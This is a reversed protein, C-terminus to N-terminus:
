SPRRAMRMAPGQQFDLRKCITMWDQRTTSTSPKWLRNCEAVNDRPYITSAVRPQVSATLARPSGAPRQISAPRLLARAVRQGSTAKAMLSARTACDAPPKAQLTPDDGEVFYAGRCAYVVPLTRTAEFADYGVKLNSWFARWPSNSHQEFNATTMRFPFVHVPIEQQGARLAHEALAYIREMIADTMAFCGTSRCGGHLLIHSGTRALSRDVANPYGLDLSRIHRGTLVLQQPSVSYFGEPSQRDGEYLKPGLTGSWHCIPFTDLLEFREANQMWLELQSEQKFMRIFLPNGASLDSTEPRRELITAHQADATPLGAIVLAVALGMMAFLSRRQVGRCIVGGAM